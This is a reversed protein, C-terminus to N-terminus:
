SADRAVRFKPLLCRAPSQFWQRPLTNPSARHYFRGLASSSACRLPVANALMSLRHHTCGNDAGIARPARTTVM